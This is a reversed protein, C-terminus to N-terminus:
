MMPHSVSTSDGFITSRSEFDSLFMSSYPSFAPSGILVSITFGSRSSVNQTQRNPLPYGAGDLEKLHHVSLSFILFASLNMKSFTEWYPSAITNSPVLFSSLPVRSCSM